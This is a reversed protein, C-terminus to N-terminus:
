DAVRRSWFCAGPYRGERRYHAARQLLFEARSRETAEAYHRLLATNGGLWAVAAEGAKAGSWLATTLGHSSLPDFATAADGAALWCAGEETVGAPPELFATGATVLRPPAMAAFGADKVWRGVYQTRGLMEQWAGGVDGSLGHPLLDPDSFYAISLRRDPLLAAYWWGTEVAELLTAPTPEVSFDRQALVSTAAVLRDIRRYSALHRGLSASRGTADILVAASRRGGDSLSLQWGTAGPM